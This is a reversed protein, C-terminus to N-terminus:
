RRADAASAERRATQIAASLTEPDRSSVLWYPCPDSADDIDIRLSTPVWGRLCLWARADLEPGAARRAAERSGFARTAGVFVPAIRASGVRIETRTVEIVLSAWALLACIGLYVAVGLIIGVLLNIPAFVLVIAPVVLMAALFVWISPWLRERYIIVPVDCCPGGPSRQFGADHAEAAARSREM